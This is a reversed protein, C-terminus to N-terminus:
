LTKLSRLGIFSDANFDHIPNASLYLETLKHCSAFTGKPISTIRNNELDVVTIGTTENFMGFIDTLQNDKGYLHIVSSPLGIKAGINNHEFNLEATNAPIDPPLEQLQRYSCNVFEYDDFSSCNCINCVQDYDGYTEIPSERTVVIGIFVLPLLVGSNAFISM